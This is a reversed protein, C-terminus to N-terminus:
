GGHVHPKRAVVVTIGQERMRTIHRTETAADVIVIDFDALPAVAHLARRDFKTHDVLLIRQASAAFMAQKVDITELNQHFAIDDCVAATSLFCVDARMRSIASTTVRGMFSSCWNYYQGGVGHLTIGSTERLQEMSTLTNTIVTLPRKTRLHPLMRVVTTSDDIMIAQGPEVFEMAAHAIAEKEANQRSSRFVDSSEVLSTSMAAAVGRNKRLLGRRELEDLDRHITMTSVEFREALQEIRVAGEAVVMETIAQQRQGQRNNRQGGAEENSM